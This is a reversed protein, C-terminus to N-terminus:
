NKRENKIEDPKAESKKSEALILAWNKRYKLYLSLGKLIEYGGVIPLGWFIFYTNPM